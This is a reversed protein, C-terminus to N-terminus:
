KYICKYPDLDLELPKLNFDLEPAESQICKKNIFYYQMKFGIPVPDLDHIPTTALTTLNLYM